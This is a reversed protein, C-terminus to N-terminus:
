DHRGEQNRPAKQNQGVVRRWLEWTKFAEKKRSQKQHWDKKQTNKHKM